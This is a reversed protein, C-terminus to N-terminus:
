TPEGPEPNLPWSHSLNRDPRVGTGTRIKTGVATSIATM